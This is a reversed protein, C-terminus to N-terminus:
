ARLEKDIAEIAEYFADRRAMLRAQIMLWDAYGLVDPSPVTECHARLNTKAMEYAIVITNRVLQLPNPKSM